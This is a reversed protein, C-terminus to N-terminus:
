MSLMYRAKLIAGSFNKATTEAIKRTSGNRYIMIRVKGSDKRIINAFGSDGNITRLFM